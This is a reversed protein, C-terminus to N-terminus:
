QAKVESLLRSYEIKLAEFKQKAENILLLAEANNGSQLLTNAEAEIAYLEAELEELVSTDLELSQAAEKLALIKSKEANLAAIVAQAEENVGEGQAQLKAYEEKLLEVLEEAEKIKEFALSDNGAEDLSIAENRLSELQATLNELETTDQGGNTAAIIGEEANERLTDLNEIYNDNILGEIVSNIRIEMEASELNILEIFERIDEETADATFVTRAQEKKELAWVTVEDFMGTDINYAAIEAKKADVDLVKANFVKLFLAYYAENVEAKQSTYNNGEFAARMREGINGFISELKTGLSQAKEGFEQAQEGLAIGEEQGEVTAGGISSQLTQIESLLSAARAATSPDNMAMPNATIGQYEASKAEIQGVITQIEEPTKGGTLANIRVQLAEGEKTYNEMKVQIDSELNAGMNKLSQELGNNGLSYDIIEQIAQGYTEPTASCLSDIRSLVGEKISLLASTDMIIGESSLSSAVEDWIQKVADAGDVFKQMNYKAMACTIAMYEKEAGADIIEQPIIKPIMAAREAAESPVGMGSIDPAGVVGTPGYEVASVIGILLLSTLILFSKNM